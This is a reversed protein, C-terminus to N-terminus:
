ASFKYFEDFYYTLLDRPHKPNAVSVGSVAENLAEEWTTGHENERDESLHAEPIEDYEKWLRDLRTRQDETLFHSFKYIELRIAPKTRIYFERVKVQPLIAAQGRIFVGFRDKEALVRSKRRNYILFGGGM